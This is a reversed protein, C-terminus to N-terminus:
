ILGALSIVHYATTQWWAKNRPAPFQFGGVGARLFTRRPSGRCVKESYQQFGEDTEYWNELESQLRLVFRVNNLESRSKMKM